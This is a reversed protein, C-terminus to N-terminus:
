SFKATGVVVHIHVIEDVNLKLEKSPNLQRVVIKDDTHRVYRKVICRVDTMVVVVDDGQVPSFTPNIQLLEGAHFREEMSSGTMYLAYAGKVARLHKPRGSYGQIEGNDWFTTGRGGETRGCIPLDEPTDEIVVSNRPNTFNNSGRQTLKNHYLEDVRTLGFLDVLVLEKPRAIKLKGAEIKQYNQQTMDLQLAVYAQTWKSDRRKLEERLDRCRNNMAPHSWSTVANDLMFFSHTITSM